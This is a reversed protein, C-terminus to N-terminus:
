LSLFVMWPWVWKTRAVAMPWVCITRPMGWESTTAAAAAVRAHVTKVGVLAGGRGTGSGFFLGGEPDAAHEGVDGGAVVEQVADEGELDILEPAGVGDTADAGIEIIGGGADEVEAAAGAIEEEGEFLGALAGDEAGVETVGHEGGGLGFVRAGREEFGVGKGEREGVGGKVEDGAGEAEAVEGVVAFADRFEVADEAGPTGGGNEFERRWGVGGEAGNVIEVAEVDEGPDTGKEAAAAVGIGIEWLRNAFKGTGFGEGGIETGGAEGVDGEIAESEADDSEM